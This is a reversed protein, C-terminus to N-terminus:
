EGFHSGKNGLSNSSELLYECRAISRLIKYVSGKLFDLCSLLSVFFLGVLGSFM